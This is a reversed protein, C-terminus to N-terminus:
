NSLCPLSSFQTEQGVSGISSLSMSLFSMAKTGADAAPNFVESASADIVQAAEGCPNGGGTTSGGYVYAYLAPDVMRTFQEPTIRGAMLDRMNQMVVAPDTPPTTTAIYEAPPVPRFEPDSFGGVYITAAGNKSDDSELEASSQTDGGGGGGGCPDGSASQSLYQTAGCKGIVDIKASEAQGQQMQRVAHAKGAISLIGALVVVIILKAKM